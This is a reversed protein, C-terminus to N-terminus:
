VGKQSMRALLESRQEPTIETVTRWSEANWIEARAGVGVVVVEDTLGAYERLHSPINIRGQKDPECMTAQGLTMRAFEGADADTFPLSAVKADLEDFADESLVALCKDTGRTVFFATGLKERFKAPM